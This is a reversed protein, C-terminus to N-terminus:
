KNKCKECIGNFYMILGDISAGTGSDANKIIKKVAVPMEMELDFIRNCKRCYLHCHDSTDADFHDVGNQPNLRSIMKNEALLKLNRYVTALSINPEHVRVERFVEEATPHQKTNKLYELILERQRSHNM